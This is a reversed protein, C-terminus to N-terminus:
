SPWVKDVVKSIKDYPEEDPWLGIMTQRAWEEIKKKRPWMWLYSTGAFLPTIWNVVADPSFKMRDYIILNVLYGRKEWCARMTLLAPLLIAYSVPFWIPHKKWDYLHVWEHLLTAISSTPNDWLSGPTPFWVTKTGITTAFNDYDIKFIGAFRGLYIQFKSRNKFKIQFGPIEKKM